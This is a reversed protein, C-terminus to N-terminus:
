AVSLPTEGAGPAPHVGKDSAQCGPGCPTVEGTWGRAQLLRGVLGALRCPELVQRWGIRVTVDGDVVSAIDRELDAWRDAAKEHGLRGDLEAVTRLGVYDVDRYAASRGRVVRRQRSATPIGHPREVRSLYRRELASYAGSAVDELVTLLLKRHRLRSRQRLCEALRKPTTRRSQCADAIVAVAADESKARSAVSMVSHELRARPPSLHMQSCADLDTVTSTRVGPVDVVRRGHAVMVEIDSGEESEPSRMRHGVLASRGALAAPWHFLVAAWARQSWTPTGTHDVYVGDHIRAWERRRIKREIDIDSGGCGLVQRRSIVGDQAALIAALETHMGSAM